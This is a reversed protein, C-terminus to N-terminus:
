GAHVGEGARALLFREAQERTTVTGAAQEEALAHVLSGIGPGEAGTLRAIEDGRLLPPPAARQVDLLLGVLEAATEAHRRLQRQRVLRGRTALRDALSLVVSAVPYPATAQLYRYAARRDLPRHRILFGLRLHEAVLVRCFRIVASSAKWRRLVAEAADAGQADHGMFSIRGDGTVRRTQPKRIDHFLAALRLAGAADLDDGVPEALERAVADAHRPLYHEPHGAVDAVTDLVHLTHEFVDLHHFPSQEV